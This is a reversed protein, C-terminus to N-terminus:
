KIRTVTDSYSTMHIFNFIKKPNQKNLKKTTKLANEKLKKQYRATNLHPLIFFVYITKM